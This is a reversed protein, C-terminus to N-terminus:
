RFRSPVRVIQPRCGSEQGVAAKPRDRIGLGLSAQEAELRGVNRCPEVLSGPPAQTHVPSEFTPGCKRVASGRESEPVVGLQRRARARDPRTRARNASSIFSVSDLTRRNEGSKM